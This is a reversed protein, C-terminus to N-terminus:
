SMVSRCFVKFGANKSLNKNHINTKHKIGPLVLGVLGELFELLFQCQAEQVLLLYYAIYKKFKKHKINSKYKNKEGFHEFFVNKNNQLTVHSELASWTRRTRMSHTFRARRYSIFRRLKSQLLNINQIKRTSPSMYAKVKHVPVELVALHEPLCLAELLLTEQVM